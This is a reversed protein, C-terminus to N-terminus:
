RDAMTRRYLHNLYGAEQMLSRANAARIDSLKRRLPFPLHDQFRKAEKVFERRERKAEDKASIARSNRRRVVPEAWNAYPECSSGMQHPKVLQLGPPTEEHSKVAQGNVPIRKM